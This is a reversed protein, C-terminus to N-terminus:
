HGSNIIVAESGTLRLGGATDKSRELLADLLRDDMLERLPVRAAELVAARAGPGADEAATVAGAIDSDTISIVNLEL